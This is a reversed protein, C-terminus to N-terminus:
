NKLRMRKQLYTNKKTKIWKKSYKYQRENKCKIECEGGSYDGTNQLCEGFDVSEEYKDKVNSPLSCPNECEIQSGDKPEWDGSDTCEYLSPSGITRTICSVSCQTPSSGSYGTVDCNASVRAWQNAKKKLIENTLPQCTRNCIISPEPAFVAEYQGLFLESLYSEPTRPEPSQHSCVGVVNSDPQEITGEECKFKCIENIPIIGTDKDGCSDIIAGDPIIDPKKCTFCKDGNKGCYKQDYHDLTGEVESVDIDIKDVIDYLEQTDYNSKKDNKFINNGFFDDVKMNTEASYGDMVPQVNFNDM